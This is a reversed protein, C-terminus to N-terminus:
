HSGLSPSNIKRLSLGELQNDLLLHHVKFVDIYAVSFPRPLNYRYIKHMYLVIIISSLTMFSLSPHPYHIFYIVFFILFKQNPILVSDRITESIARFM